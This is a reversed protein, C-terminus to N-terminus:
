PRLTLQWSHPGPPLQLRFGAEDTVLSAPEGDITLAQARAAIPGQLYIAAAAMTSPVFGDIVTARLHLEVPLNAHVTLEPLTLRTNRELMIHTGDARRSVSAFAGDVEFGEVALHRPDEPMFLWDLRDGLRLTFGALDPLPAVTPAEQDPLIPYLISLLGRGAPRAYHILSSPRNYKGRFEVEASSAQGADPDLVYLLMDVGAHGTVRLPNATYEQVDGHVWLTWETPLEGRIRDRMAIYNAGAPDPDTMMAIRRQWATATNRGAIPEPAMPWQKVGAYERESLTDLVIDGLAMSGGQGVLHSTVHGLSEDYLHNVSIRNHLWPHFEGYGHDLVLPAGKGYLVISGQDADYHSYTQGERFYLKTERGTGAHAEMIVGFGEYAGGGRTPARPEIEPDYFLMESYAPLGQPVCFWHHIGAGGRWFKKGKQHEATGYGHEHFMWMLNAALEPDVDKIGKAWMGFEYITEGPYANGIQVVFRQNNMMPEPPTQLDLYHRLFRSMRPDSYYDRIGNHRLAAVLMTHETMAAMVYHPNEIWAGDPSLWHDFERDIQTTCRAIWAASEPHNPLLLGVLGVADYCFSSMNPNAANGDEPSWYGRWSLMYAMFALRARLLAAEDETLEGFAFAMDAMNCSQFVPTAIHHPPGPNVLMREVTTRSIDLALQTLKTAVKPDDLPPLKDAGYWGNYAIRRSEYSDRPAYLVPYRDAPAAEWELVWDKLRNIDNRSYRVAERSFWSRPASNVTKETANAGTGVTVSETRPFDRSILIAWQRSGTFLPFRAELRGGDTMVIPVNKLRRFTFFQHPNQVMLWSHGPLVDYAIHRWREPATLVFGIMDGDPKSNYYATHLTQSQHATWPSLETWVATRRYDVPFLDGHWPRLDWLSGVGALQAGRFAQPQVAMDPALGAALDFVFTAGTPETFNMSFREDIRILPEDRGLRIEVIYLSSDAFTYQVAVRKYIPGDDIVQVQRSKVFVEGQLGAQGYWDGVGRVQMFPPPVQEPPQPTEFEQSLEPIRVGALPSALVIEGGQRTLTLTEDAAAGAGDEVIWEHAQGAELGAVLAIELRRISGDDWTALAKFQAVVPEGASTRLAASSASALRGRPLERTFTLVQPLQTIGLREKMGFRIIEAAGAVLTVTSMVLVVALLRCCSRDM